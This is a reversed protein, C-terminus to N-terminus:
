VFLLSIIKCFVIVVILISWFRCFSSCISLYKCLTLICVVSKLSMLNEHDVVIRVLVFHFSILKEVVVFVICNFVMGFILRMM